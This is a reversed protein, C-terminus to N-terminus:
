QAKARGAPMGLLTRLASFDQETVSSIKSLDARIAQLAVKGEPTEAMSFLSRQILAQWEAPVRPSAVFIHEPVTPMQYLSYLGQAKYKEYTEDKIAGAQFEGALVGMAVNEHNGVFKSSHFDQERVGARKLVAMPVLYGMTSKNDVFAIRQGRLTSLAANTQSAPTTMPQRTVLHGSLGQRGEFIVKGLLPRRGYRAETILWEAPGIYAIDVRQEGLAEIHGEYDPSIRLVVSLGIDSSLKKVLPSFRKEIDAASAYPHVALVLPAAQLPGTTILIWLALLPGFRHFLSPKRNVSFTKATPYWPTM